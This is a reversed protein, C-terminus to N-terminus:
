RFLLYIIILISIDIIYPIYPLYEEWLVKHDQQFAGLLYSASINNSYLARDIFVQYSQHYM